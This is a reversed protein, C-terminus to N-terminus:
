VLTLRADSEIKATLEPWGNAVQMNFCHLYVTLLKPDFVDVLRDITASL